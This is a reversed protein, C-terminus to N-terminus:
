RRRRVQTDPGACCRGRARSAFAALREDSRPQRDKRLWRGLRLVRVERRIGETREGIVYREFDAFYNV